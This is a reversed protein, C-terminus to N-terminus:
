VEEATNTDFGADILEAGLSVVGEPVKIAGSVLGAIAAAIANTERGQEIPSLDLYDEFTQQVM